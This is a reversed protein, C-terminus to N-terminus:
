RLAVHPQLCRHHLLNAATEGAAERLLHELVQALRRLQLLLKVQVLQLLKVAIQLVQVLDTVKSVM